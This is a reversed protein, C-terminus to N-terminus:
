LVTPAYLPATSMVGIARLECLFDCAETQAKMTSFRGMSESQADSTPTKM